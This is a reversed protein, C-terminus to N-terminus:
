AAEKGQLHLALGKLFNREAARGEIARFVKTAAVLGCKVAEDSAGAPVSVVISVGNDTTMSITIENGSGQGKKVSMKM